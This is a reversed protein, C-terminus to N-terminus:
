YSLGTFSRSPNKLVARAILRRSEVPIMTFAAKMHIGGKEM